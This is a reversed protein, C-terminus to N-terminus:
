AEAQGHGSERIRREDEAEQDEDMVERIASPDTLIKRDARRLMKETLSYCEAHVQRAEMIGGDETGPIGVLTVPADADTRCIPCTFGHGYNPHDFTRM